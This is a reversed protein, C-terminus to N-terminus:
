KTHRLHPYTIKVKDVQDYLNGNSQDSIESLDQKLNVNNTEMDSEESNNDSLIDTQLTVNENYNVVYESSPDLDYM